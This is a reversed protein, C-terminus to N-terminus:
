FPLDDDYSNNSNFDEPFPLDDMPNESHSTDMPHRFYFELFTKPYTLVNGDYGGQTIHKLSFPIGNEDAYKKVQTGLELGAARGLYDYLSLYETKDNM